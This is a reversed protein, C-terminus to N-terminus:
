IPCNVWFYFHATLKSVRLADSIYTVIEETSCYLLNKASSHTTFDIAAQVKLTLFLLDPLVFNIGHSRIIYQPRVFRDTHALIQVNNVNNNGRQCITSPSTRNVFLDNKQVTRKLSRSSSTWWILSFWRVWDFSVKLSTESESHAVIGTYRIRHHQNKGITFQLQFTVTWFLWNM